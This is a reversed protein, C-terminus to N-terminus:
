KEWVIINQGIDNENENLWKKADERSKQFDNGKAEVSVVNAELYKKVIFTEGEYPLLDELWFNPDDEPILLVEELSLTELFSDLEEKDMKNLEELIDKESVSSKKNKNILEKIETNIDVETKTEERTEIKKSGTDVNDGGFNVKIFVLVFILFALFIIIKYKSLFNKM